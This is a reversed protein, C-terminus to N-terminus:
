LELLHLRVLVGECQIRPQPTRRQYIKPLPRKAFRVWFKTGMRDLLALYATAFTKSSAIEEAVSGTFPPSGPGPIPSTHTSSFGLAAAFPAFHEPNENKPDVPELHLNLTLNLGAATVTKIFHDPEPFLQSGFTYGGWAVPQEGHYHWAMDSVLVDLPVSHEAYGRAIEELDEATYPWYRSWWVGLAFRPPAKAAGAISAYAQLAATYAHGYGFFYLDTYHDSTRNTPPALWQARPDLRDRASDDIVAWGNRSIPGFDCGVKM